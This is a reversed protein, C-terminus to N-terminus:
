EEEQIFMDVIEDIELISALAEISIPIEVMIRTDVPSFICLTPHHTTNSIAISARLGPADAFYAGIITCYKLAGSISLGYLASLIDACVYSDFIVSTIRVNIYADYITLTHVCTSYYRRNHTVDYDYDGIPSPEHITHVIKYAGLTISKENGMSIIREFDFM